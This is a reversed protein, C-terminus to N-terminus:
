LRAIGTTWASWQMLVTDLTDKGELRRGKSPGFPCLACEKMKTEHDSTAQKRYKRIASQDIMGTVLLNITGAAAEATLSRRVAANRVLVWGAVYQLWVIRNSTAAYADLPQALMGFAILLQLGGEAWTGTDM